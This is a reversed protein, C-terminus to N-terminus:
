TRWREAGIESCILNSCGERLLEEVATKGNLGHNQVFHAAGKEIDHIM